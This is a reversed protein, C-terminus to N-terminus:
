ASKRGKIRMGGFYVFVRRLGTRISHAMNGRHTKWELNSLRSDHKIGNKHNIEHLASPAPPMFADAVLQHVNKTKFRGAADAIVVVRYGVKGIGSKLIRGGYRWERGDRITIHGLSRVRGFTSVEYNPSGAIAAWQEVIVM